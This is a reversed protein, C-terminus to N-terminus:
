KKLILKIKKWFAQNANQEKILDQQKMLDQFEGVRRWMDQARREYVPATYARSTELGLIRLVNSNQSELLELNCALASWVRDVINEEDKKEGHYELVFAWSKGLIPITNFGFPEALQRIAEISYSVIHGRVIPDLYDTDENIVYDPMGTNFIYLAGDSSVAALKKLIGTLMHPTLHEIVEICMGCDVKFPLKDYDELFYNSSKCQFEIAPPYTEIGWYVDQKEPLFQAIMDLFYGPGTGIDLFKHVPIRCYYLAEAMRALAVGGARKRASKLEKNWYTEDYKILSFESDNDMKDIIDPSIFISGCVGCRYYFYGGGSGIKKYFVAEGDNCCICKIKECM